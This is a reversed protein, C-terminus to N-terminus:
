REQDWIERSKTVPSGGDSPLVVMRVTTSLNEFAAWKMGRGLNSEVLSIAWIIVHKPDPDETRRM